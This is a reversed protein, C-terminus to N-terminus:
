HPNLFSFSSFNIVTSALISKILNTCIEKQYKTKKENKLRFKNLMDHIQLNQIKIFLRECPQSPQCAIDENLPNFSEKRSSYIFVM